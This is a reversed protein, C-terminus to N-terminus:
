IVRCKELGFDKMCPEIQHDAHYSTIAYINPISFLRAQLRDPRGETFLSLLFVLSMFLSEIM